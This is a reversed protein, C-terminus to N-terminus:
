AAARRRRMQEVVARGSHGLRAAMRNLSVGRDAVEGLRQLEAETWLASMM